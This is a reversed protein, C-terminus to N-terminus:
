VAPWQLLLVACQALSPIPPHNLMECINLSVPALCSTQPCGPALSLWSIMSHSKPASPPPQLPEATAHCLSPPPSLASHLVKGTWLTFTLSLLTTFSALPCIVLTFDSSPKTHNLALIPNRKGEWKRGDQRSFLRSAGKTSKNTQDTPKKKRPRCHIEESQSETFTVGRFSLVHKGVFCKLLVIVVKRADFHCNNVNWLANVHKESPTESPISTQRWLFSEHAARATDEITGAQGEKVEARTQLWMCHQNCLLFLFLCHFVSMGAIGPHAKM